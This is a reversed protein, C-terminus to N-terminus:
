EEDEALCSTFDESEPDSEKDLNKIDTLTTKLQVLLLLWIEHCEKETQSLLRKEAKKRAEVQEEAKAAEVATSRLNSL